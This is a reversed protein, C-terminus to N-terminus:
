YYGSRTLFADVAATDGVKLEIIDKVAQKKDTAQKYYAACICYGMFYGLDPHQSKAGNYLWDDTRVGHMEAKFKEKLEAEHERGYIMYPGKNPTGTALEAIFDAAGEKAVQALLNAGQAQEQQTHVYEHVNLAVLNAMSQTRFVNKLWDSLESADTNKDASAIETGILVKNGQTTGGSNLCGVTFYMKSERMEPYIKRLRDVAADLDGVRNKVEFTNPRISAWFKPYANMKTCWRRATYDRAEIFAHLGPTGRDIYLRQILQLQLATDTTNRVSDYAEWFHDIDSTYVNPQALVFLPLIFLLLLPTLLRM